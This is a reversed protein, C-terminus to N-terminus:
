VQKLARTRHRAASVRVHAQRAAAPIRGPSQFQGMHPSDTRRGAAALDMSYESQVATLPLASHARRITQVGAESVGWHKIKGEGILM